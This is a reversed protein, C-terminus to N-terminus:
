TQWKKKQKVFDRRGSTPPELWADQLESRQPRTSGSSALQQLWLKNPNTRETPVEFPSRCM